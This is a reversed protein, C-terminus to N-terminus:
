CGAGKVLTSAAWAVKFIEITRSVALKRQM